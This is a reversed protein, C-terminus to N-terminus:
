SAAPAAEDDSSGITPGDDEGATDDEVEDEDTGGAQVAQVVSMKPKAGKLMGHITGDM